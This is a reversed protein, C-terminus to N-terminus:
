KINRHLQRQLRNHSAIRPSHNGNGPAIPPMANALQSEAFHAAAVEEDAKIHPQFLIKRSAVVVLCRRGRSLLASRRKGKSQSRKASGETRAQRFWSLLRKFSKRRSRM